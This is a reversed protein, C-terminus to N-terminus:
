PSPSCLYQDPHDVEYNPTSSNAMSNAPSDWEGSLIRDWENTEFHPGQALGLMM